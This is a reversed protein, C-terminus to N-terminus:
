QNAKRSLHSDIHTFKVKDLDIRTRKSNKHRNDSCVAACVGGPCSVRSVVLRSVEPASVVRGLGAVSVAGGGFRRDLGLVPCGTGMDFVADFGSVVASVVWRTEPYTRRPPLMVSREPVLTWIRPPPLPIDCVSLEPWKTILAGGLEVSTKLWM